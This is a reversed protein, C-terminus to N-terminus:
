AAETAKWCDLAQVRRFWRELNVLGAVPMKSREADTLPAAVALDALSLGSDCIWERGQLHRDLVEAATRFMREGRAVESADTAGLGALAKIKNEKNLITAGPMFDQACWFLWRNVDARSRPDTPYLTQGPVTDALFQMIACSEWLVFGGDELVPVRHNPNLKLFSPANQEGECRRKTSTAAISAEASPKM